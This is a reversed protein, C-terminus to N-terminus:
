GALTKLARKLIVDLSVEEPYEKWVRDLADEAAQKRYGLNVLASLIDDKIKEAASDVAKVKPSIQDVMKLMKEQLELIIREAMKKGVGPINVLKKLNGRSVALTLESAEIGSLINLALKPGIGNVSILLQFVDREGATLFGFLAIGDERVHTYVHLTVQQGIDPLEYFTSLPVYVQYGIGQTDVIIQNPSKFILSGSIRAIM